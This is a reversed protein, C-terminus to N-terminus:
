KRSWTLTVSREPYYCSFFFFFPVHEVLSPKYVYWAWIHAIQSTEMYPQLLPLNVELRWHHYVKRIQPYLSRLALGVHWMIMVTQHLVLESLLTCSERGRLWCLSTSSVNSVKILHWYKRIKFLFGVLSKIQQCLNTQRTCETVSNHHMNRQSQVWSSVIDAQTFNLTAWCHLASSNLSWSVVDENKHPQM